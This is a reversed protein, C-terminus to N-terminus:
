LRGFGWQREKCWWCVGCHQAIDDLSECSMTLPFLTNTLNLQSYITAIEFKNLNVFPTYVDDSWLQRPKPRLRFDQEPLVPMGLGADEPPLDTFGIILKPTTVSDLMSNFSIQDQFDSYLITHTVKNNNTETVCFKVVDVSPILNRYFKKKNTLTIIHTTTTQQKLLLFLLLASDAGGSVIITVPENITELM